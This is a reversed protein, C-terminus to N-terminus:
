ELFYAVPKQFYNAVKELSRLNPTSTDWRKITGNGIKCEKELRAISISNEKCLEYIKENVM